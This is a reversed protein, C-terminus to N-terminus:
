KFKLSTFMSQDMLKGASNTVLMVQALDTNAMSTLIIVPMTGDVELHQPVTGLIMIMIVMQLALPEEMTTPWQMM